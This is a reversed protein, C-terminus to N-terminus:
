NGTVCYCSFIHSELFIVRALAPARPQSLSSSSFCTPCPPRTAVSCAPSPVPFSFPVSKGKTVLAAGM